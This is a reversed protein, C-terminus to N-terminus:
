TNYLFIASFDHASGFYLYPNWYIYLSFLCFFLPHSGFYLNSLIHCYLYFFSSFDYPKSSTFIQIQKHKYLFLASFDYTPGFYLNSNWYSILLFIIPRLQLLSKSKLLNIFSILLFIIPRLRLLSKGFLFVFVFFFREGRLSDRFRNVIFVGCGILLLPLLLLCFFIVKFISSLISRASRAFM